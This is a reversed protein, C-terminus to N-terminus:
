FDNLATHRRSGPRQAIWITTDKAIRSPDTQTALHHERLAADRYEVEYTGQTLLSISAYWTPDDTAPEIIVFTNDTTNLDGILMYLADESPEDIFDGNETEARPHFKPSAM